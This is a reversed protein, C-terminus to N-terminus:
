DPNKLMSSELLQEALMFDVPNTIKINQEEGKVLHVKYGAAEIVSAEDTFGNKYELKYSSLLVESKFVQPTQVIKISARELAESGTERIIRLSEKADVVPVASGYELTAEYCNRILDVSTFIRVGDHVFIISEEKVLQLGKQVSHFRTNGGSVVEVTNNQFYTELMKKGEDIFDLPLVLIIKLDAFSRLFTNITYYLIPKGKLLLFQKPVSANMRSGIGGAVIVAFKKM